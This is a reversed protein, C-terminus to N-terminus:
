RLQWGRHGQRSKRDNGTWIQELWRAEKKGLIDTMLGETEELAVLLVSDAPSYFQYEFDPLVDVIREDVPVLELTEDSWCHSDDIRWVKLRPGPNLHSFHVKVIRDRSTGPAYNVIMTSIRGKVRASFTTLDPLPNSSLLKEEGMRSFMQYVFYQPRAKGNESFLGFRHPKENWHQYMVKQAWEPSYFKSFEANFMCNDWLLFYFSWDLPTELMTLMIKAATAARRGQMAMEEVSLLDYAEAPYTGHPLEGLNLGDTFNPPFDQNWEDLM